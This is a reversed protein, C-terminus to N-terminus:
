VADENVLVANNFAQLCVEAGYEIGRSINALPIQVGERRLYVVVLNDIM